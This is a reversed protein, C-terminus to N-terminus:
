TSVNRNKKITEPLNTIPKNKGRCACACACARECVRACCHAGGAVLVAGALGPVALRPLVAHVVAALGCVAITLVVVAVVLLRRLVRPQPMDVVTAVFHVPIVTINSAGFFPKKYVSMYVFERTKETYETERERERIESTM